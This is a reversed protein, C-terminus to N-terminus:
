AARGNIFAERALKRAQRAEESASGKVLKPGVFEDAMKEALSEADKEFSKIDAKVEAETM